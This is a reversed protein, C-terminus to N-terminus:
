ERFKFKAQARIDQARIDQARKRLTSAVKGVGKSEQLTITIPACCRLLRQSPIYLKLSNRFIHAFSRLKAAECSRLKASM